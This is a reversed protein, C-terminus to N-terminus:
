LFDDTIQLRGFRVPSAVYIYPPRNQEVAMEDVQHRFPPLDAPKSASAGAIGNDYSFNTENQPNVPTSPDTSFSNALRSLFSMALHSVGYAVGSM